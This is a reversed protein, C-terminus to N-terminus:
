PVVVRRTAGDENQIVTVFLTGKTNKKLEIQGVFNGSFDKIEKRAVEKGKTDTISVNIDGKQAAQFRLNLVGDDPNNAYVNLDRVSAPKGLERSWFEGMRDGFDEMDRMMVRAKPKFEREFNRAHDRWKETDFHFDENWSFATAEHNGPRDVIVKRRKRGMSREDDGDVTISLNRPHDKSLDLSDIARDIFEKRERDTMDGVEYKKEINKMKGDKNESAKIRITSKKDDTGKQAFSEQCFLSAACLLGSLMLKPSIIQTM